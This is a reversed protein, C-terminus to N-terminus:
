FNFSPVAYTPQRGKCHKVKRLIKVYDPNFVHRHDLWWQSPKPLLIMPGTWDKLLRTVWGSFAVILKPNILNLEKVTVPTDRRAANLMGIKAMDYKASHLCYYFWGTWRRTTAYALPPTTKLIGETGVFLYDPNPGGLYDSALATLAHHFKEDKAVAGRGWMQWQDWLYATPSPDLKWPTEKTTIRASGFRAMALKLLMPKLPNRGWVRMWQRPNGHAVHYGNLNLRLISHLNPSQKFTVLTKPPLLEKPPVEGDEFDLFLIM